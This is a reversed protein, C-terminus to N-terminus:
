MAQLHLQSRNILIDCFVMEDTGIKNEGKQYLMEVDQDVQTKNPAVEPPRNGSLAM